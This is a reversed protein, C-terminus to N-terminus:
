WNIRIFPIGQTWNISVAARQSDKAFCKDVINNLDAWGKMWCISAKHEKHEGVRSEVSANWLLVKHVHFQGQEGTADFWGCSSYFSALFMKSMWNFSTGIRFPTFGSDATLCTRPTSGVGERIFPSSSACPEFRIRICIRWSDSERTIRAIKQWRDAPPQPSPLNPHPVHLKADLPAHDM